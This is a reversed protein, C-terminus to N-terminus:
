RPVAAGITPAAGEPLPQGFFDVEPRESIHAFIGQGAAPFAPHPWPVGRRAAPSAPAIVYGAPQDAGPDAFQPDGEVPSADLARLRPSIRGFFLNGALELRGGDLVARYKEGIMGHRPAAFINNWIRAGRGRFDLDPYMGARVYITNNYIYIGESKIMGPSWPSVWITNGDKERLGDNISINYRWIINRNNGLIEVFGGESDYSFNYQYLVDRNGFDVHMGYSDKHGRVHRSRNRQAVIDRSNIVWAGSGRGVMRSPVASSGTRDFDNNEILAFRAGALQVATGGLEIFRNDKIIIDRNFGTGPDRTHADRAGAGDGPHGIQVGFRGTRVIDNDSIVIDRFYSPPAGAPAPDVVFRIGSVAVRNFADESSHDLEAAFVNNIALRTFRFHELVGGGDNIVHIGFSWDSREGEQPRDLTNAIELDSIEIHQQNRILIAASYGGEPGSAGDIQPKPGAGYSAIRVPQGRRGSAQLALQGAFRDGAKLLLADGPAYSHASARALTRWPHRPSTGAASDDGSSSSVHYQVPAPETQSRVPATLFPLLLCLFLAFWNVPPTM